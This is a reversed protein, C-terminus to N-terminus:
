KNKSEVPLLPTPANMEKSLEKRYKRYYRHDFLFGIGTLLFIIMIIVAVLSPVTNPVQENVIDMNGSMMMRFVGIWPIEIWAVSKVQEKAVLGSVGAINSPQDFVTNNDGMTIYGSHPFVTALRDLDISAAINGHYGMGNLILTGSLSNYDNVREGSITDSWRDLPYGQLSPASWTGDGNYNLWLIARHIVPNLDVGRSYVIVNGFGGFTQYGSKYGDVYTQITTNNVNKLIIMDATDIIGIHSGVGHQMSESEVVTTQPMSSGSAASIGLFVVVVIVIAVVITVITHKTDKEVIHNHM